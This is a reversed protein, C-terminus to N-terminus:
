FKKAAEISRRAFREHDNPKDHEMVFISAPTNKVAAWIANWPMTGHGVDDWGDEDKKEGHPAIDKVHIAALRDGYRKIWDVPDAGGRVVWAIDGEWALSPAADLMLALPVSGDALPRLEFDHNHWGFTFGAKVYPEGAKEVRRGFESWGAANTPRQDPGIHPCFIAKMGTTRAINLVKDPENELMDLGFHGSTMKLGNRDLAAKMAAPDSYVGGYGEVEEYGMGKLMALTDEIPPFERSSYLQYSFSTM